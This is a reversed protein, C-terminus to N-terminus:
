GRHGPGSVRGQQAGDGRREQAGAARRLVGPSVDEGLAPEAMRQGRCPGRREGREIFDPCVEIRCQEQLMAQIERVTLGRADMAIIKADFGPLGKQWKAVLLPEFSRQRDRPMAIEMKGSDGLVTKKSFGNRCDGAGDRVAEAEGSDSEMPSRGTKLHHTLEAGLVRELLAKTLQALLGEKGLIAEPSHGHEAILADLAKVNIVGERSKKENM